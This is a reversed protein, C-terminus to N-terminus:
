RRRRAITDIVRDLWGARGAALEEYAGDYGPRPQTDGNFVVGVLKAPDVLRLGAAVLKRPTRNAAVVVLFGDVSREILRCDPVHLLPPTDLVVYGYRGRADDLLSAFRESRLVDYPTTTSRGAGLVDFALHPPSAVIDPLGLAPDLIADVLGPGKTTGLLHRGVAPKRLDADILLVRGGGHRLAGSVNIATTTKGEGGLSSSVAVVAVGARRQADELVHRVTLYPEADVARWPLLSVLREDLAPGAGM